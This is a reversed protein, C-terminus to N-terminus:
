EAIACTGQPESTRTTSEHSHSEQSSTKETRPRNRGASASKMATSGSRMRKSGSKRVRHKRYAEKGKNVAKKTESSVDHGVVIQLMKRLM